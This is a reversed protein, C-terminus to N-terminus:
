NGEEDPGEVVFTEEYIALWQPREGARYAAMSPVEYEEVRVNVARAEPHRGFVKGAWSAALPSRLENVGFLVVPTGSRLRVEHNPAEGLTVEHAKGAGDAIAFRTRNTAAVSPAFFGFGNDAGSLVAYRYLLPGPLGKKLLSLGGSASCVVVVLHFAATCAALKLRLTM